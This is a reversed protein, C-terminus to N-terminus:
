PLGNRPSPSDESGTSRRGDNGPLWRTVSSWCSSTKPAPTGPSNPRCSCLRVHGAHQPQAWAAPSQLRGFFSSRTLSETTSVAPRQDHCEARDRSSISLSHYARRMADRGRYRPCTDYRVLAIDEIHDHYAGSWDALNDSRAGDPSSQGGDEHLLARRDTVAPVERAHRALRQQPRHPERGLQTPHRSQHATGNIDCRDQSPAVRGYGEEVVGVVHADDLAGRLAPARARAGSHQSRPVGDDDRGAAFRRDGVYGPQSLSVGPRVSLCGPDLLHRFAQDHYAATGDGPSIAWANCASPVSPVVIITRLSQTSLRKSGAVPQYRYRQCSTPASFCYSGHSPVLECDRM